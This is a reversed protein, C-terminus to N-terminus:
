IEPLSQPTRLQQIALMKGVKDMKFRWLSKEEPTLKKDNISKMVIMSRRTKKVATRDERNALDLKESENLVKFRDGDVPLIFLGSEQEVHRRWARTVAYFRSSKRDSQIMQEITEYLIEQGITLASDPFLTRLKKIDPGYPIGGFYRDDM